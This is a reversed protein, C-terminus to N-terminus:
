RYVKGEIQRDLKANLEKLQILMDKQNADIDFWRAELTGIRQKNDNMISAQSKVDSITTIFIWVIFSLFAASITIMLGIFIKNIRSEVAEEIKHQTDAM